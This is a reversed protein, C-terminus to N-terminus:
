TKIKKDIVPLNLAFEDSRKEAVKEYCNPCSDNAARSGIGKKQRYKSYKVFNKAM